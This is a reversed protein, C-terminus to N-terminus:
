ASWIPFLQHRGMHPILDLRVAEQSVPGPRCRHESVAICALLMLLLCLVFWLKDGLSEKGASLQRLM